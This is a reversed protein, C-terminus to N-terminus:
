HSMLVPIRCDKLVDETAGGLVFERLRSHGFGGMVLLEAGLDSAEAQLAEGIPRDQLHIAHAEARVGRAGLSDFIRRGLDPEVPKEDMVSIISVKTATDIFPAADGLARAAARSGDWAIAVHEIRGSFFQDPYLIVPRGSGFIVSEMIPQFHPAAELLIVDYHRALEAIADTYVPQEASITESELVVEAAACRNALINLLSRGHRRSTEEAEAVMKDTDILLSSWPNTIPPITIDIATAHLIAGRNRALDVANSIMFDTCKDPYTALPLFFQAKM